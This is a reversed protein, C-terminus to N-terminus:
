VTTEYAHRPTTLGTPPQLGERQQVRQYSLNLTYRDLRLLMSEPSSHIPTVSRQSFPGVRRTAMVALPQQTPM